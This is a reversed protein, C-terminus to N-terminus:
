TNPTTANKTVVAHLQDPKGLSDYVTGHMDFKNTPGGVNNADNRIRVVVEDTDPDVLYQAYARQLQGDTAAAVEPAQDDDTKSQGSAAPQAAPRARPAHQPPEAARPAAAAEVRLEHTDTM